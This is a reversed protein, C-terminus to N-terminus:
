PRQGTGSVKPQDKKAYASVFKQYDESSDLRSM